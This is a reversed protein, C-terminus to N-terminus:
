RRWVPASRPLFSSYLEAFAVAHYTLRNVVDAFAAVQTALVVYRQGPRVRLGRCEYALGDSAIRFLWPPGPRLLCEARLLFELDPHSQEFQLFVEHPAPWRSLALRQAGYLFRGRAIPRGEYGAVRCRSQTLVPQTDPFRRCLSSLDPIEISVSWSTGEVDVPRLVLRPEIGLAAIEARAEETRRPRTKRSPERALGRVRARERASHRAARLWERGRREQDLDRSIRRLTPADLLSDTGSEGELLLAAAIQGVLQREQVFHQFRESATWSRTAVLQGLTSPDTFVAQSFSSRIEYLVRALQRQLDKPLVAHTIPWCIITFHDAWQGSPNAGGYTESFGATANGFGPGIVVPRGVRHRRRSPRGISMEPTAIVSNQPTSSGRSGISGLHSAPDSTHAYPERFSNSGLM